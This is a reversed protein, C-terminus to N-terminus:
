PRRPPVFPFEGLYESKWYNGAQKREALNTFKYRYTLVRVYRPAKENEFPNHKLLGTIAPENQILGYIFSDFWFKMDFEKPPMFWIMWDLRPQHPVIFPPVEGPHNPKYKFHYQKWEKGDYSGEISFEYRETQMTPFVHYANGLGWARTWFFAKPVNITSFVQTAIAVSTSFILVGFFSTVWLAPRNVVQRANETISFKRLPHLLRDDLLFLCLVITLLNIWNHNSSAIIMVQLLITSFAAFLRFRRPLFIFFPVILEVFLTFGTGTKLLWDPLQHFYWSGLHPLPQTEFYYNLTSLNLWSPDQLKSAGSLFRLRFLLWHFLFIVVRNNNWILFITLFGAELLLYDWQFSLFLQGVHFLSLYLGFLCIGSILQAKGIFLLGSFLMGAYCALVLSSDSSDLWFLTPIRLWAIEGFRAETNQFFYQVPLIGNEGVLGEIQVSLSLFAAFYILAIARVFLWSGTNFSRSLVDEVPATAYRNFVFDWVRM